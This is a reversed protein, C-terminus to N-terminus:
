YVFPDALFSQSVQTKRDQMRAGVRVEKQVSKREREKGDKLYRSMETYRENM